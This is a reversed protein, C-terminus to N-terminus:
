FFDVWEFNKKLFIPNILSHLKYDQKIFPMTSGFFADRGGGFNFFNYIITQLFMGNSNVIVRKLQPSEFSQPPQKPPPPHLWDRIISDFIQPCVSM